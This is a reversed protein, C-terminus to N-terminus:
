TSVFMESSNWCFTRERHSNSFSLSVASVFRHCACHNKQLPEGLQWNGATNIAATHPCPDSSGGAASATTPAPSSGSNAATGGAGAATTANQIGSTVSGDQTVKSLARASVSAGGEDSIIPLYNNNVSGLLTAM